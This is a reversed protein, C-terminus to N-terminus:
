RSRAFAALADTLQEVMSECAEAVANWVDPDIDHPPHNDRVYTAGARFQERWQRVREADRETAPPEITMALVGTRVTPPFADVPVLQVAEVVGTKLHRVATATM